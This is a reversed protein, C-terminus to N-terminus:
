TWIELTVEATTELTETKIILTVIKLFVNETKGLTIQLKKELETVLPGIKRIKKLSIIEIISMRMADAVAEQIV